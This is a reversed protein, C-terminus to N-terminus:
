LYMIVCIMNDAQNPFNKQAIQSIRNVVSRAIRPVGRDENVMKLCSENMIIKRMSDDVINDWIGDSAVVLCRTGRDTESRLDLITIEPKWVVGFENLNFNGIARTSALMDMYPHHKPTTVYTARDKSVSKYYYKVNERIQPVGDDEKIEYISECEYKNSKSIEDYVFLLESTASKNNKIKIYESASTAGQNNNIRIYESPNDPSHNHTLVRVRDNYCLIAKCDGVNSVYLVGQILIILTLMAGGNVNKYEQYHSSRYLIRGNEDKIVDPYERYYKTAFVDRVRNHIFEFCNEIFLQTNDVLLEKNDNVFEKIGLTCANAALKGTYLGHGDAVGIITCDINKLSMICMDDQQEYGNGIHSDAGIAIKLKNEMQREMKRISKLREIYKNILILKITWDM